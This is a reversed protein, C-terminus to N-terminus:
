LTGGVRLTLSNKAAELEDDAVDHISAWIASSIAFEKINLYDSINTGALHDPTIAQGDISVISLQLSKLTGAFSDKKAEAMVIRLEGLSLEKMVVERGDPLKFSHTVSARAM